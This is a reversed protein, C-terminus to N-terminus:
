LDYYNKLINNYTYGLDIKREKKEESYSLLSENLEKIGIDLPLLKGCKMKRLRNAIAGMDFSVPSLGM